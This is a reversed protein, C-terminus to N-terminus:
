LCPLPQSLPINVTLTFVEPNPQLNPNHAKRSANCIVKRAPIAALGQATGTSTSLIVLLDPITKIRLTLIVPHAHIGLLLCQKVTLSALM